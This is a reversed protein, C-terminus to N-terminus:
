LPDRSEGQLTLLFCAKRLALFLVFVDFFMLCGLGSVRRAEYIIQM